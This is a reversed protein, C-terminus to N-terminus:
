LWTLLSSCLKGVERVEPGRLTKARLRDAMQNLAAQLKAPEQAAALRRLARNNLQWCGNCLWGPQMRQLEEQSLLSPVLILDQDTHRHPYVKGARKNGKPDSSGCRNCKCPLQTTEQQRQPRRRKRAM